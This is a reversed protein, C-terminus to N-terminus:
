RKKRRAVISIDCGLYKLNFDIEADVPEINFDAERIAYGIQQTIGEKTFVSHIVESDEVPIFRNGIKEYYM